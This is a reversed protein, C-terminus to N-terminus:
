TYMIHKLTEKDINKRIMWRSTIAGKDPLEDDLSTLTMTKHLQLAQIIPNEIGGTEMLYGLRKIVSQSDFRLVYKLLKKYDIKDKATYIAKAVEAIGGAYSPKYLCDVITKELDSCLVKNYSDIWIPKYGFYHKRNHCIFQFPVDRIHIISPRVQKNTVIQEKLSPQTILNHIQLASYYGVYYDNGALPEALLHWDPLYSKSDKEYPIVYYVGDKIRLLLGEHVMRFVQKKISDNSSNPLLSYLTDITVWEKGAATIAALIESSRIGIIKYEM